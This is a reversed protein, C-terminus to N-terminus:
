PGITWTGGGAPVSYTAVVTGDFTAALWRHQVFAKWDDLTEGAEIIGYLELSCDHGVWYVAVAASTQNVLVFPLANTGTDPSCDTVAAPFPPPPKVDLTDLLTASLARDADNTVEAIHYVASGGAQPFVYEWREIGAPGCGSSRRVQGSGHRPHSHPEPSGITTCDTPKLNEWIAPLDLTGGPTGPWYQGVVFYAEGATGPQKGVALNPALRLLEFGGVDASAGHDSEFEWGEPPAASAIRKLPDTVLQGQYGAATADVPAAPLTPAAAAPTPDAVASGGQGRIMFWVGGGGIAALVLGAVVVVPWVSRQPPAPGWSGPPQGQGWQPPPQDPGPGQGGQGPTGSSVM